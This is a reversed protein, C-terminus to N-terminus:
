LNKGTVVNGRYWNRKECTKKFTELPYAVLISCIQSDRFSWRIGLLRLSHIVTQQIGSVHNPTLLIGREMFGESINYLHMYIGDENGQNHM